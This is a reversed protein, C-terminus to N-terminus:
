ADASIRPHSQLEPRAIQISEGAIVLRAQRTQLAAQLGGLATQLITEADNSARLSASIEAALREREAHLRTAELLRANELALAIQGAAEELLSHESETWTQQDAERQLWITGLTQGRLTLPVVISSGGSLADQPTGAQSVTEVGLRNYRYAYSRRNLLRRWAQRTQQGYVKELARLANQSEEFLRANEIALALQDALIQLVETDESTFAGAQNSQVDLVGIVRGRVKLPVALESRTEPLDPNAYYDSDARVDLVIRAEGSGAVWGVIGTRGVALKHNRGLMRRGGPSNAAQLVAFEGAADLLFIGAHDFRFQEGILNVGQKLLLEVDRIAAAERAVLAAAKLEVVQRDVHQQLGAKLTKLDSIMNEREQIRSELEANLRDVKAQRVGALFAFAGLFLPATSIMWLLPQEFYVLLVNVWSFAKAHLYLVWLVAVVPFSLGFIAGALAYRWVTFNKM